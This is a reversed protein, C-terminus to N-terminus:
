QICDIGKTFMLGRRHINSKSSKAHSRKRLGSGHYPYLHTPITEGGQPVTLDPHAVDFVTKMEEDFEVPDPRHYDADPLDSLESTISRSSTNRFNKKSGLGNNVANSNSSSVGSHHRSMEPKSQFLAGLGGLDGYSQASSSSNSTLTRVLPRKSQESESPVTYSPCSIQDPEDDFPNVFEQDLLEAHDIDSLALSNSRTIEKGAPVPPPVPPAGEPSLSLPISSALAVPRLEPTEISEEEPPPTPAMQDIRECPRLVEQQDALKQKKFGKQVEFLRATLPSPQLDSLESTISWHDKQNNSESPVTYSPCSIQDPEDDFPNVFEQDLLEAHDIDSLALSNSRTIEKGAPVPPPVPPAGEPSLSLPISSALAVPRLEPTEISEEEPPPTPAMQDIRECPRLVEQQDALKQKKFGKQVEFLRATLPSPQPLTKGGIHVHVEEEYAHAETETQEEEDEDEQVANSYARTGQRKGPAHRHPKMNESDATNDESMTRKRARQALSETGDIEHQHEARINPAGERLAQSTKALAKAEDIEAWMGSLTSSSHTTGAERQLFKGPPSLARVMQVIEKSVRAKEQKSTALNYLNKRQRVWERFTKNGPHSNIGGGRGCLVDHPHPTRIRKQVTAQTGRFGGMQVYTSSGGQVYTSTSGGTGAGGTIETRTSGADRRKFSGSRQRTGTAM